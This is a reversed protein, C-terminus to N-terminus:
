IVPGGTQQITPSQRAPAPLAQFLPPGGSTAPGVAHDGCLRISTNASEEPPYALKGAARIVADNFFGADCLRRRDASPWNRSIARRKIM